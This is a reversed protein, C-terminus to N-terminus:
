GTAEIGNAGGGVTQQNAAEAAKIERTTYDYVQTTKRKVTCLYLKEAFYDCFGRLNKYGDQRLIDFLSKLPRTEATRRLANRSFKGFPM